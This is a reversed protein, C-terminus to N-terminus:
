FKEQKSKNLNLLHYLAKELRFAMSNDFIDTYIFEFDGIYEKMDSTNDISEFCKGSLAIDAVSKGNFDGCLFEIRHYTTDIYPVFVENLDFTITYIKTPYENENISKYETIFHVISGETEFRSYKGEMKDYHTFTKLKSDIWDITEEKTAPNKNQCFACVPLLVFLYILKKM